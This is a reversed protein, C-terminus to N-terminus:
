NENHWKEFVVIEKLIVCIRYTLITTIDNQCVDVVTELLMYTGNKFFTVYLTKSTFRHYPLNVMM